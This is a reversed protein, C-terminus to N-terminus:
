IFLILVRSDCFSKSIYLVLISTTQPYFLAWKEKGLKKREEEEKRKREEKKKRKRNAQKPKKCELKLISSM